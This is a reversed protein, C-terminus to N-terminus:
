LGERPNIPNLRDFEALLSRSRSDINHPIVIQTTVYFDGKGENKLSPFGKGKFRFNTGSQTGAPIKLILRGQPSPIEIKTGFVAEGISIPVSLYIDQGERRFIRHPTVIINLYLDGRPGGRLGPAGQGPVRIVSGTDVGPPIHVNIRRELVRITASFGHYAQEFSITLDYELNDGKVGYRRHSRQTQSRFFDSFMEEFVSFGSSGFNGFNSNFNERQFGSGYFTGYSSRFEDFNKGVHGYMDYQRRKEKDSLIEYAESIEKFRDEAYKSNNNVDPHYQRALRRYASKIEEDSATKSLGLVTYPDRKQM